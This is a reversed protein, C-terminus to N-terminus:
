NSLSQLIRQAKELEDRHVFVQQQQHTIGFGSLRASEMEDKIVPIINEAQLANKLALVEVSSATYIPVFTRSM